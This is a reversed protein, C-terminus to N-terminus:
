NSGPGCSAGLWDLYRRNGGHLPLVLFEPTDYPHESVILKELKPLYRATTKLILLVESDREIKGQWRYHSEIKPILNACAILRSELAARALRRATKLDPAKMPDSYVPATAKAIGFRNAPKTSFHSRFTSFIARKESFAMETVPNHTPGNEKKDKRRPLM